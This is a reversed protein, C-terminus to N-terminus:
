ALFQNGQLGLWLWSDPPSQGSLSQRDWEPLVPCATESEYASTLYTPTLLSILLFSSPSNYVYFIMYKKFLM